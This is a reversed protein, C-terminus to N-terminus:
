EKMVQHYFAERNEGITSGTTAYASVFRMLAVALLIAMVAGKSRFTYWIGVILLIGVLYQM